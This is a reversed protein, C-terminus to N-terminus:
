IVLAGVPLRMHQGKEVLLHVQFFDGIRKDALKALGSVLFPRDLLLRVELAVKSMESDPNGLDPRGSLVKM